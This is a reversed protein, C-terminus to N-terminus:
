GPITVNGDGVDIPPNEAEYKAKAEEFWEFFAEISEFSEMFAQQEAPTMDMFMRYDVDEPDPVDVSPKETPDTDQKPPNTPNNPRDSDEPEDAVGDSGTSNGPRTAETPKENKNETPKTSDQDDDASESEEENQDWDDDNFISDVVPGEQIQIEETTVTAEPSESPGEASVPDQTKKQCGALMLVALALLCIMWKKMM